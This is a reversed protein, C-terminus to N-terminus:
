VNNAVMDKIASISMSAIKNMWKRLDKQHFTEACRKAVDDGPAVDSYGEFLSNLGAQSCDQTRITISVRYARTQQWFIKNVAGDPDVHGNAALLTSIESVLENDRTGKELSLFDPWVQSKIKGRPGITAKEECVVVQIVNKGTEDLRLHLGDFGKHAHIMQPPSKLTEPSQLNAAFWSIVQFLWGDRHWPEEPNIATLLRIAGEKTSEKPIYSGCGTKKLIHLVHRYQGLAVRAIMAALQKENTISWNSGAWSSGNSIPNFSIIKNIIEESTL